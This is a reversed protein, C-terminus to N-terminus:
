EKTEETEGVVFRWSGDDKLLIRRGDPGTVEFDAMAVAWPALAGLLLILGAAMGHHKM